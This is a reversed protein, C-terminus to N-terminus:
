FMDGGGMGGMGGMGGPAPAGAASPEQPLDVIMCETTTLLSSVSAADTLATRVVKVPDIIGTKVLDVYDGTAANFGFSFSGEHQLVKQVVVAGEHGANDCITRCPVRIANKIVKIGVGQDFNEGQLKDLARSAYLLASGGGAVIGEEVAARTANLADVIRDKKEGVEVESAGGVKIVAVGGSLKALREQLKEKEYESTTLEMADRISEVRENLAAQEGGGNLIITDDKSITIKKCTGLM